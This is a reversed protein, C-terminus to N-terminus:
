YFWPYEEEGEEDESYGFIEEINKFGVSNAHFGKTGFAMQAIWIELPRTSWKLCSRFCAYSLCLLFRLADMQHSNELNAEVLGQVVRRSHISKVEPSVISHLSRSCSSLRIVAKDSLHQCLLPPFFNAEFLHSMESEEAAAGEGEVLARGKENATVPPTDFDSDGDDFEEKLLDDPSQCQFWQTYREHVARLNIPLLWLAECGVFLLPNVAIVTWSRLCM